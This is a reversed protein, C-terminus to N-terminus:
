LLAGKLTRALRDAFSDDSNTTHKLSIVETFHKNFVGSIIGNGSKEAISQLFDGADFEAQNFRPGSLIYLSFGSDNRGEIELFYVHQQNYEVLVFLAKRRRDGVFSWTYNSSKGEPMKFGYLGYPFAGDLMNEPLATIFLGETEQEISYIVKATLSLRENIPIPASDRNKARIEWPELNNDQQYNSLQTSGDDSGPEKEETKIFAQQENESSKTVKTIHVDYLHNFRESYFELEQVAIGGNPQEDATLTPIHNTDDRNIKKRSIPSKTSDKNSSRYSDVSEIEISDFPLAHNCKEITRVLYTTYKGKENPPLWQGQVEMEAADLFPLNTKPCCEELQWNKREYLAVVDVLSSYILRMADRADEDAIARALLIADSDRCKRRLWVYVSLEEANFDSKYIFASKIQDAEMGGNFLMTTFYRSGSFYYRIVEMVPILVTVTAGDVTSGPFKILNSYNNNKIFPFKETDSEKKFNTITKENQKIEINLSDSPEWALAGNRWVSSPKLVVLNTIDEPLSVTQVIIKTGKVSNKFRDRIPISKIKEINQYESSYECFNILITKFIKDSSYSSTLDIGRVFDLRYYTDKKLSKEANKLVFKSVM